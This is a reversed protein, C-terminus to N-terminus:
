MTISLLYNGPSFEFRTRVVPATHARYIIFMRGWSCFEPLFPAERKWGRPLLPLFYLIHTGDNMAAGIIGEELLAIRIKTSVKM